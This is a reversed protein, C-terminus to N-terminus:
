PRNTKNGGVYQADLNMGIVRAIQNAHPYRTANSGATSWIDPAELFM